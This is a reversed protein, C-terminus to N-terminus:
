RTRTVVGEYRTCCKDTWIRLEYTKNHVVASELRKMPDFYGQATIQAIQSSGDWLEIWLRDNYDGFFTVDARIHDFSDSSVFYSQSWPRDVFSGGIADTLSDSPRTPGSCGCSIVAAAIFGFLRKM